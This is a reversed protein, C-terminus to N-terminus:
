RHSPIQFDLRCLTAGRGIVVQFKGSLTQESPINLIYNGKPFQQALQKWTAHTRDTTIPFFRGGTGSALDTLLQKVSPVSSDPAAAHLRVRSDTAAQLLSTATVYSSSDERGASVIVLDKTGDRSSLAEIAQRIAPRLVPSLTPTVTPSRTDPSTNDRNTWDILEVHDSLSALQIVSDSPLQRCFPIAAELRSRAVVPDSDSQDVLIVFNREIPRALDHGDSLKLQQLESEGRLLRVDKTTLGKFYEHQPSFLSFQVHAGDGSVDVSEISAQCGTPLLVPLGRIEQELEVLMSSVVADEIGFGRAARLAKMYCVHRQDLDTHANGWDIWHDVYWQEYDGQWTTRPQQRILNRLYLEGAAYGQSTQLEILHQLVSSTTKDSEASDANRKDQSETGSDPTDAGGSTTPPVIEPPFADGGEEPVALSIEDPSRKELGRLQESWREKWYESDCEEIALRLRNAAGSADQTLLLAHVDSQVAMVQRSTYADTEPFQRLGWMVAALLGVCLGCHIPGSLLHATASSHQGTRRLLLLAGGGCIAFILVVMLLELPQRWDMAVSAIVVVILSLTLQIATLWSFGRRPPAVMAARRRRQRDRQGAGGPRSLHEQAHEEHTEITSM